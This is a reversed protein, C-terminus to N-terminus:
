PPMESDNPSQVGPSNGSYLQELATVSRIRPKMRARGPLTWEERDGVVIGLNGLTATVWDLTHAM